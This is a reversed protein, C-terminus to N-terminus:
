ETALSGRAGYGLEGKTWEIKFVADPPVLIRLPGPQDINNAREYKEKVRNLEWREARVVHRSGADVKTRFRRATGAPGSETRGAETGDVFVKFFVTASPDDASDDTCQIELNYEAPRALRKELAYAAIVRAERADVVAVVAGDAAFLIRDNVVAQFRSPVGITLPVRRSNISVFTGEKGRALICPGAGTLAFDMAAEALPAGGGNLDIRYLVGQNGNDGASPASLVFLTGRNGAIKVPNGERDPKWAYETGADTRMDIRGAFLKRYGGQGKDPKDARLYWLMGDAYQGIIVGAPPLARVGDEAHAYMTGDRLVCAFPLSGSRPGAEHKTESLATGTVCSLVLAIAIPFVFLPDSRKLVTRSIPGTFRKV